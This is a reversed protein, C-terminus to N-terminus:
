GTREAAAEGQRWGVWVTISETLSLQQDLGQFQSEDMGMEGMDDSEDPDRCVLSGAAGFYYYTRGSARDAYMM